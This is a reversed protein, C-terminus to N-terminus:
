VAMASWGDYDHVAHGLFVANSPVQFADSIFTHQQKMNTQTTGYYTVYSPQVNTTESGCLLGYNNGVQSAYDYWPQFLSIQGPEDPGNDQAHNRYAGVVVFDANDMLFTGDQATKGQYPFSPRAGKNDKLYFAGFCGIRFGVGFTKKMSRMMDCLRPCSVSAQQNPDTWYEVDLLMGDFKEEPEAAQAQFWQINQTINKQVWSQNNTWDKDGALAYVKIGSLHAGTLFQRMRALKDVTWNANGVYNYMDLYLANVGHSGCFNLLTQQSADTVLPDQGPENKVWTFMGCELNNNFPIPPTALPTIPM